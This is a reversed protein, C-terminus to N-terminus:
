TESKVLGGDGADNVGWRRRRLPTEPLSADGFVTRFGCDSAVPDAAAARKVGAPVRDLIAAIM